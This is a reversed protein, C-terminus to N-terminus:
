PNLFGAVEETKGNTFFCDRMLMICNHMTGGQWANTRSLRIPPDVLQPWQWREWRWFVGVWGPCQANNGSHEANFGQRSLLDKSLKGGASNLDFGGRFVNCCDTVHRRNLHMSPKGLVRWGRRQRIDFLNQRLCEVDGLKTFHVRNWSLKRTWM